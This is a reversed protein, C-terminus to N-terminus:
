RNLINMIIYALTSALILGTITTNIMVIRADYGLEVMCYRILITLYWSFMVSFSIVPIWHKWKNKGSYKIERGSEIMEEDM